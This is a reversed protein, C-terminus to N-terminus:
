LGDAPKEKKRLRCRSSVGVDNKLRCFRFRLLLLLTVFVSLDRSRCLLLSDEDGSEAHSLDHGDGFLCYYFHILCRSMRKVSFFFFVPLILLWGVYFVCGEYM